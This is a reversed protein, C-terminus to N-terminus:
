RNDKKLSEFIRKSVGPKVVFPAKTDFETKPKIGMANRTVDAVAGLPDIVISPRKETDTWATNLFSSVESPTDTISTRPKIISQATPAQTLEGAKVPSPPNTPPPPPMPPPPIVEPETVLRPPPEWVEQPIETTGAVPPIDSATLNEKKLIQLPPQWNEWDIDEPQQPQTPVDEQPLDQMFRLQNLYSDMDTYPDSQQPPPTPTPIPPNSTPPFRSASQSMARNYSDMTTDYGTSSTWSNATELTQKEWATYSPDNFAQELFDSKINGATESSAPNTNPIIGGQNNQQAYMNSMARDYASMASDQQSSEETPLNQSGWSNNDQGYTVSGDGYSPFEQTPFVPGSSTAITGGTQAQSSAAMVAGTAQTERSYPMSGPPWYSSSEQTQVAPGSSDAVTGGTDPTKAQSGAMMARMAQDYASMAHDEDGSSAKLTRGKKPCENTPNRMLCLKHYSPHLEPRKALSYSLWAVTHHATVAVLFIGLISKMSM